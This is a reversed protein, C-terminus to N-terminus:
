KEFGQGDSMIDLVATDHLCEVGGTRWLSTDPM